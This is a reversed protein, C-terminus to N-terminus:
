FLLLASPVKSFGYSKLLTLKLIVHSTLSETTWKATSARVSTVFSAHRPAPAAEVPHVIAGLRKENVLVNRSPRLCVFLNFLPESTKVALYFRVLQDGDM